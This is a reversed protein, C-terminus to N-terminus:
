SWRLLELARRQTEHHAIGFGSSEREFGDIDHQCRDIMQLYYQEVWSHDFLTRGESPPRNFLEDPKDIGIVICEVNLERERLLRRIRDAEQRDMFVLRDGDKVSELLSTTRGSRRASQCYVRAMGKM